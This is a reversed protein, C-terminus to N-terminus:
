VKIDLVRGPRAIPAFTTDPQKAVIADSMKTTNSTSNAQAPILSPASRTRAAGASMMAEFARRAESIEGNPRASGANLPLLNPNIKM